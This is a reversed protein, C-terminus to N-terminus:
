SLWTSNSGNKEKTRNVTVLTPVTTPNVIGARTAATRHLEQEYCQDTDDHFFNNVPDYQM